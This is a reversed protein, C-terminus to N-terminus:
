RDPLGHHTVCFEFGPGNQFVALAVDRSHYEQTSRNWLKLQVRNKRNFSLPPCRSGPPQASVQLERQRGRQHCLISFGGMTTTRHQFLVRMVFCRM